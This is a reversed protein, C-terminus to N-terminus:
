IAGQVHERVNGVHRVDPARREVLVLREDLRQDSPQTPTIHIQLIADEDPVDAELRRRATYGDVPEVAFPVAQHGRDGDRRVVEHQDCESECQTVKVTVV